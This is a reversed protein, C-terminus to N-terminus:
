GHQAQIHPREEVEVAFGEFRKPSRSRVHWLYRPEVWVRLSPPQSEHWVLVNAAGAPLRLTALLARAADHPTM